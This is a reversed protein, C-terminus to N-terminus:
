DYRIGCGFSRTCPTKVPRSALTADLAERLYHRKIPTQDDNLAGYYVIRRDQDVLFVTPTQTVGFHRGIDQSFDHLYPFNYGSAKAREIMKPLLDPESTSISIAVLQLDKGYDKQIQILEKEQFQCLVCHNAVFAVAVLRTQIQALSHKQGDVGPLDRWAPAAQGIQVVRNFSGEARPQALGALGFLIILFLGAKRM